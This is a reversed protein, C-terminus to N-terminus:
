GNKTDEELKFLLEESQNGAADSLVRMTYKVTDSFTEKSPRYKSPWIHYRGLYSISLGEPLSETLIAKFWLLDDAMKTM